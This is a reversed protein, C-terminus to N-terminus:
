CQSNIKEPYVKVFATWKSELFFNPSKFFNRADTVLILQPCGQTEFQSAVWPLNPPKLNIEFTAGFLRAHSSLFEVSCCKMLKFYKPLGIDEKQSLFRSSFLDFSSLRFYFKIMSNMPVDDITQCILNKDFGFQNFRKTARNACNWLASHFM